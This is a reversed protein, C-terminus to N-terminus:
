SNPWAILEFGFRLDPDRALQILPIDTGPVTWTPYLDAVPVFLHPLEWLAPELIQDDLALLDFDIVRPAFKESTRMRGLRTELPTLITSKIQDAPLHTQALCAANYFPASSTGWAPTQWIRSEQQVPFVARLATLGRLFNNEPEINSGIHIVALSM